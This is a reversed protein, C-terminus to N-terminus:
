LMRQLLHRMLASDKVFNTFRESPYSLGRTVVSVVVDSVASSSSPGKSTKLFFTRFIIWTLALDRLFFDVLEVGSLDM